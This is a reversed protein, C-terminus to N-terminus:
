SVFYSLFVQDCTTSHPALLGYQIIILVPLQSSMSPPKEVITEASSTSEHSDSSQRGEIIPALADDTVAEASRVAMQQADLVAPPMRVGSHSFIVPVVNSYWRPPPTGGAVASLLSSTRHLPTAPAQSPSPQRPSASLHSAFLSSSRNKLPPRNPNSASRGPMRGTQTPTSPLDGAEPVKNDSDMADDSGIESDTEFPDENDANMAAAVWLDAINTVANQNAMLLRQAFNLDMRTPAGGKCRARTAAVDRPLVRWDGGTAATTDM